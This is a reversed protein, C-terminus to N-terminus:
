VLSQRLPALPEIAGLGEGFPGPMGVMRHKVRERPNFGKGPICWPRNPVTHVYVDLVTCDVPEM